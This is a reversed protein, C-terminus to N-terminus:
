SVLSAYVDAYRARMARASFREIVHRHAAEGLARMRDRSSAAERMRAALAEVDGAPSLLGTRDDKVIEPVGGVAFGVAPRGMSMAELLAMGLGESRSSCLAADAAAVIPRADEVYGHFLVRRRVGLGVALRELAARQEGEGVVELRIEPVRALAEIALDVGKRRELRGILVFTFDECSTSAARPAFRDTDVGNPVVRM